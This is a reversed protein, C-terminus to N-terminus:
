RPLAALVAEVAEGVAEGGGVVVEAAEPPEYPDDIGTMHQLDGARARAYLGKPDRRECEELTTAVHVELFPLGRGESISRATARDARYPSVLAVLVTVGADALLAAVEGTRRVNEARDEASFGLDGNLGHRLNDGDLIFASRGEALLRAEVEAAITSKGSAPLGTFWVTAGSHGLAAWRQARDLLGRQWVVNSSRQPESPM